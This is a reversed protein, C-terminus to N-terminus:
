TDKKKNKLNLRKNLANEIEPTVFKNLTGGHKAIEKVLSSAIGTYEPRAFIFYTEINSDLLRNAEAISREYDFDSMGRLSRVMVSPAHSKAFDVTLGAHSIVTVNKFKQLAEAALESREKLNFLQSKSSSESILVIVKSFTKSLRRIVDIHGLTIPDFSGPFVATLDKNKM